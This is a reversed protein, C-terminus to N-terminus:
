NDREKDRLGMRLNRLNGCIICEMDMWGVMWDEM